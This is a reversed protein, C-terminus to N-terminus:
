GDLGVFARCADSGVVEIPEGRVFAEPSLVVRQVEALAGRRAMRHTGDPRFGLKRSVALSA